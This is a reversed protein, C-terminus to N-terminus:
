LLVNLPVEEIIYNESRNQTQKITRLLYHDHENIQKEPSKKSHKLILVRATSEQRVYAIPVKSANMHNADCTYVIFLKEM